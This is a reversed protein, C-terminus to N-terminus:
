SDGSDEVIRHRIAYRILESVNAFNMKAMIHTKHTSVTKVSLSLQEAIDSVGTGAAIM